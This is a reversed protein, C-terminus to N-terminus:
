RQSQVIVEVPDYIEGGPEAPRGHTSWGLYGLAGRAAKYAAYDEKAQARAVLRGAPLKGVAFGKLEVLGREDTTPMMARLLDAAEQGTDCTIETVTQKIKIM